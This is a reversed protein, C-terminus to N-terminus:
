QFLRLLNQPLQNAQALMSVGAQVLIQKSVFVSMESAVDLDLMVSRAAETNETVSALNARAFDLRNQSAGTLARFAQLDDIAESSVQSALNAADATRVNINGIGLATTTVGHLNVTLDDEAVVSGTGVKFTLSTINNTTRYDFAGLTAPALDTTVSFSTDITIQMENESGATTSDLTILASAQMTTGDHFNSSLVGTFSEVFTGDTLNFTFTQTAGVFSGNIDATFSTNSLSGEVTTDGQFTVDIVGNAASFTGFNGVAVDEDILKAGTFDTDAAIRDIESIIEQFEVDIMQRESDGLQASAAQVSLSKMRILMDNINGQAGDAVQLMSVAQMANVGARRLGAVEGALRNGVALSAADDRASLVRTGSALKSLSSTVEQDSKVLFRHAVQAAQNSIVNLSM